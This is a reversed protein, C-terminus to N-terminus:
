FSIENIFRNGKYGIRHRYIKNLSPKIQLVDFLPENESGISRSESGEGRDPLACGTTVYTVNGSETYDDVHTHGGFVGLVTGSHAEIVNRILGGDNNVDNEAFTNEAAQWTLGKFMIHTFVLAKEGRGQIDDLEGQLWARQTSSFHTWGHRFASRKQVFSGYNDPQDFGDLIVINVDSNPIKYSGYLANNANSKANIFQSFENLRLQNAVDNHIIHGPWYGWEGNAYDRNDDRAMGSNDDHNGQLIAFPRRGLKMADVARQVDAKEWAIPQVGDNLDGGHVVYDLGVNKAIYSMLKMQRLARVTGPTKFSNFHTDTIFGVLVSDEIGNQQDTSSIDNRLQEILTEESSNLVLDEQPNERLTQVSYGSDDSNYEEDSFTYDWIDEIPQKHSSDNVYNFKSTPTSSSKTTKLPKTLTGLTLYTGDKGKAWLRGQAVLKYEYHYNDGIKLLTVKKGDKDPTERTWGNSDVLKVFGRVHIVEDILEKNPLATSKFSSQETDEGGQPRGTTSGGGTEGGGTSGNQPIVPDGPNNDTSYYMFSPIFQGYPLFASVGTSTTYHSWYCGDEKIKKDYYITDGVSLTEDVLDALTNPQAYGYAYASDTITISGNTVYEFGEPTQDAVDAAAQGTLSGVGDQNGSTSGGTSGGDVPKIPNTNDSDTGFVVGTDTNAYPVFAWNVSAGIYSLWFHNGNKIKRAYYVTQGVQYYTVPTVSMDPSTRVGCKTNFTFSGSDDIEYGDPTNSVDFSM